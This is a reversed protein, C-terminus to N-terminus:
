GGNCEGPLVAGYRLAFDRINHYVKLLESALPVARNLTEANLESDEPYDHAFANRMERFLPWQAANDIAGIKELRNLKDIFTNLAGQEGVLDLVHPFLKAGIADQLKSFRTSFQDMYAVETPTLNDFANVSLPFLSEVEAMVWELRLAHRDCIWLTRGTVDAIHRGSSM